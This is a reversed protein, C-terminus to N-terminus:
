VAELLTEIVAEAVLSYAEGAGAPKLQGSLLQVGVSFAQEQGVIRARNLREEYSGAEMIERRILGRLEAESPRSGIYGPDLIADMLRRRQSLIRALRPASGMIQALLRLLDPNARLMSFFQVAAPVESLFKDFTSLALDPDSTGGLAELLVPTFETL